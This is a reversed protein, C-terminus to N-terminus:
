VYTVGKFLRVEVLRDELSPISTDFFEEHVRGAPSAQAHIVSVKGNPAVAFIGTHCPAISDSFIGIAGHIPMDAPDSFLNIQRTFQNGPDRRYGTMDECPLGFRQATVVLLGVCDIGRDPGIGRGQHRWRAGIWTRAYAVIDDQTTM